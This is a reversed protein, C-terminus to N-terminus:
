ASSAIEGHRDAGGKMEDAARDANREGRGAGSQVLHIELDRLIDAAGIRDARDQRTRRDTVQRRNKCENIKRRRWFRKERRARGIPQQGAHGVCGGGGIPLCRIDRGGRIGHRGDVISAIEREPTM